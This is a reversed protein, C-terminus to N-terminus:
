RRRRSAAPMVDGFAVGPASRKGVRRKGVWRRGHTGPVARRCAPAGRLVGASGGKGGVAAGRDGRARHQWVRGRSTTMCALSSACVVHTHTSVEHLRPTHLARVAACVCVCVCVDARLQSHFERGLGEPQHVHPAFVHSATLCLFACSYARLGSTSCPRLCSGSGRVALPSLAYRSM